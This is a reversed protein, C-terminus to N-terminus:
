FWKAWMTQALSYKQLGMEILAENNFHKEFDYRKGNYLLAQNATKMYGFNIKPFTRNIGTLKFLGGDNVFNGEEPLFPLGVGYSQYYTSMLIIQGDPTLSFNEQVSTKQVSHTYEYTFTKNILLPIVLVTDGQQQNKLVLVPVPLFFFTFLMLSILTSIILKSKSGFFGVM